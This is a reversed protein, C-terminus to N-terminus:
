CREHFTRTATRSCQRRLSDLRRARLSAVTRASSWFRRRAMQRSCARRRSTSLSRRAACACLKCSHRKCWNEIRRATDSVHAAPLGTDNFALDDSRYPQLCPQDVQLRCAARRAGARQPLFKRRVYARDEQDQLEQPDPLWSLVDQQSPARAAAM